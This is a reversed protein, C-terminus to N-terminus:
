DVETGDNSDTDDGSEAKAITPMTKSKEAKISTATITVLYGSATIYFMTWTGNEDVETYTEKNDEKSVTVQAIRFNNEIDKLEITCEDITLKNNEVLKVNVKAACYDDFSGYIDGDDKEVVMCATRLTSADSEAAVKNASNIVSSFTPVLVAALIAIVAIVIVLEVLTFGRKNNKKM